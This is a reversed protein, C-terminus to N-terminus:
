GLILTLFWRHCWCSWRTVVANFPSSPSSSFQYFFM